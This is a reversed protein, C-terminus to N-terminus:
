SALADTEGGDAPLPEPTLVEAEAPEEPIPTGAPLDTMALGALQAVVQRLTRWYPDYQLSLAALPLDGRSLDAAETEPVTAPIEPMSSSRGLVNLGLGGLAMALLLLAAPAVQASAAREFLGQLVPPRLRTITAM